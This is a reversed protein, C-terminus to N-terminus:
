QERYELILQKYAEMLKYEYVLISGQLKFFTLVVFLPFPILLFMGTVSWFGNHTFAWHAFLTVGIVFCCSSLADLLRLMKRRRAEIEMYQAEFYKLLELDSPNSMKLKANELMMTRFYKRELDRNEIM